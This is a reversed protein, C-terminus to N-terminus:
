ETFQDVLATLAEIVSPYDGIYEKNIYLNYSSSDYKKDYLRIVTWEHNYEGIIGSAVVTREIKSM